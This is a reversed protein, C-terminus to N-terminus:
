DEVNVILAPHVGQETIVTEDGSWGKQLVAGDIEPHWGEIWTKTNVVPGRKDKIKSDLVNYKGLQAETMYM